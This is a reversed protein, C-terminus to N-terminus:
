KGKLSLIAFQYFGNMRVEIKQGNLQYEAKPGFIIEVEQYAQPLLYEFSDNGSAEKYVLLYGEEPDNSSIWFGTWAHGNPEMGVPIVPGNHWKKSLNGYIKLLSKIEAEGESLGSLEMWALPQAALSSALAYILGVNSPAHKDGSSYKNQNRYVNLWEIQLRSSPMYAALLWLNRLTRYPFYNGWDTYRNELFVNGYEQMFHYGVRRGATVDLNFTVRGSTAAMVRDFFSRVNKEAIFNGLELGDIKFVKIGYKEYYKILVDADRQWNAYDDRKSPNFWLCLEVHHKKAMAVISEFGDPFRDKHPQWDETTWDDWIKGAKSASNKSLGQQWGDDLQLHTIGLEGAKQIENLIFAENMRSDQSRDGWTNALVMADRELHYKRLQIQYSLWDKQENFHGSHSLGRAFGYSPMWEDMQLHDPGVGFGNVGVGWLNISFDYGPYNVQSWDIPSEKLLWVSRDGVAERGIILNGSARQTQRFPLIRQKQLPEDHYDTAEKFSVIEYVSHQGWGPLIGFRSNEGKGTSSHEIMQRDFNGNPEWIDSSPKGRFFVQHRVAGSNEYMRLHYKVTLDRSEAILDIWLYSYETSYEQRLGHEFTINQFKLEKGSIFLDPKPQDVKLEISHDHSQISLLSLEGNWLFKHTAHRNSLSLTDGSWSLRPQISSAFAFFPLVLFLWCVIAKM